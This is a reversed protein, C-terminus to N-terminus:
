IKKEINQIKKMQNPFIKIKIEMLEKEQITKRESDM